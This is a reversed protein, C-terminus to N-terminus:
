AAAKVCDNLPDVHRNLGAWFLSRQISTSARAPSIDGINDNASERELCIKSGNRNVGLNQNKSTVWSNCLKSYFASVNQPWSRHSVASKYQRLQIPAMSLVIRKMESSAAIMQRAWARQLTASFTRSTARPTELFTVVLLVSSTFANDLSNSNLVGCNSFM